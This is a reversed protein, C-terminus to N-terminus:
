EPYFFGGLNEGFLENEQNMGAFLPKFKHYRTDKILHKNVAGPFCNSLYKM